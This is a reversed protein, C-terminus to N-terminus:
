RNFFLEMTLLDFICTKSNYTNRNHLFNLNVELISLNYMINTNYKVKYYNKLIFQKINYSM